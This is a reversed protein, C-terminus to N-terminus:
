HVGEDIEEGARSRECVDNRRRGSHAAGSRRPDAEYNEIIAGGTAILDTGPENGSRSLYM